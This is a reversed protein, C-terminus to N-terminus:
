SVIPTSPATPFPLQTLGPRFHLSLTTLGLRNLRLALRRVTAMVASRGLAVNSTTHAPIAAGEASLIQVALSARGNTVTATRM